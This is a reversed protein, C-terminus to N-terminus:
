TDEIASHDAGAGNTITVNGGITSVGVSDRYIYTRTNGVGNNITVSGGVNLNVLTTSDSGTTNTGNSITINGEVTMGTASVLNAGNGGSISLNGKLDIPVTNDFTLRDDGDLLQITLDKVGGPSVFPGAVHNFTDSTSTLTFKTPDGAVGQVTLS